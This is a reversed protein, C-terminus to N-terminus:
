RYEEKTRTIEVAIDTFVAEVPAEPKHLRVTVQELPYQKLLAEAVRSAVREILQCSEGRVVRTIVEVAEAYNVTDELADTRGARHLDLYLTVDLVFPQPTQKEEPLVGHCAMLCLGTILITDM